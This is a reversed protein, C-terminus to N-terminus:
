LYLRCSKAYHIHGSAAFLNLLQSCPHAEWNKSRERFINIRATRSSEGLEAKQEVLLRDLKQLAINDVICHENGPELTNQLLQVLSELEDKDLSGTHEAHLFLCEMLKTHLSAVSFALVSFSLLPPHFICTRFVCPVPIHLLPFYLYPFRWYSHAPTSFALVFRCRHLVYTCCSLSYKSSNVIKWDQMKLRDAILIQEGTLQDLVTHAHLTKDAIYQGV